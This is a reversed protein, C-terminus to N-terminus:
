SSLNNLFEIMEDRTQEKAHFIENSNYIQDICSIVLDFMQNIDTEDIKTLQGITDFTPYKM